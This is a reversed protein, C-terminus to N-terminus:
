ITERFFFFYKWQFRKGTSLKRWENISPVVCVFFFIIWFFNSPFSTIPFYYIFNCSCLSIRKPTDRGSHNLSQSNEAQKGSLIIAITCCISRNKRILIIFSFFIPRTLLLSIYLYMVVHLIMYMQNIHPQWIGPRKIPGIHQMGIRFVNINQWRYIISNLSM